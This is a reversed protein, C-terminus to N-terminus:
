QEDCLGKLRKLNHQYRKLNRRAHAYKVAYVLYSIVLYVALFVLYQKGLGKGFALLDIEYMEEMFMEFNYFVYLALFLLYSITGCFLSKFVGMAMYDSRFYGGVVLNQKGEGAEYAAMRTMLIVRDENLM